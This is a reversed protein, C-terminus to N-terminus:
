KGTNANVKEKKRNTVSSSEEKRVISKVREELKEMKELKLM